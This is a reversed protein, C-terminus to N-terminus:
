KKTIVCINNGNITGTLKYAKSKNITQNINGNELMKEIESRNSDNIEYEYVIAEFANGEQEWIMLIYEKEKLDIETFYVYEENLILYEEGEVYTEAFNYAIKNKNFTEQIYREINEKSKKYGEGKSLNPEKIIEDTVIYETKVKESTIALKILDTDSIPLNEDMEIESIYPNSKLFDSWLKREESTTTAVTLNENISDDKKNNKLIKFFLIGTVILLIILVVILIKNRKNM